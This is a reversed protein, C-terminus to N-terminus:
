RSPRGHCSSAGKDDTPLSSVSQASLSRLSQIAKEIEGQMEEFSSCSMMLTTMLKELTERQPWPRDNLLHMKWNPFPMPLMLVSADSKKKDLADALSGPPIDRTHYFQAENTVGSVTGALSVAPDVFYADWTPTNLSNIKARDGIILFLHNEVKEMLAANYIHDPSPREFFIMGVQINKTQIAPNKLLQFLTVAGADQCTGPMRIPSERCDILKLQLAFQLRQIADSTFLASAKNKPFFESLPGTLADLMPKLDRERYDHAAAIAEPPTSATVLPYRTTAVAMAEIIARQVPDGPISTVTAGNQWLGFPPRYGAVARVAEELIAKNALPEPTDLQAIYNLLQQCTVGDKASANKNIGERVSLLRIVERRQDIEAQSAKEFGLLKIIFEYCAFHLPALQGAHSPVNIDFSLTLLPKLLEPDGKKALFRCAYALDDKSEHWEELSFRKEKPYKHRLLEIFTPM